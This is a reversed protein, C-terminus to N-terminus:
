DGDPDDPWTAMMMLFLIVGTIMVVTFPSM